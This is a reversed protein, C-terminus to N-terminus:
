KLDKLEFNQNAVFNEFNSQKPFATTTTALFTEMTSGSQGKPTQWAKKKGANFTRGRSSKSPPLSSNFITKQSSARLLSISSGSGRLRADNLFSPVSATTEGMKKGKQDARGPLVSTSQTKLRNNSLPHNNRGNNSRQKRRMNSYAQAAAPSDKTLAGNVDARHGSYLRNTLDVKPFTSGDNNSSPDM